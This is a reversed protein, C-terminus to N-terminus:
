NEEVADSESHGKEAIEITESSLEENCVACYVVSDYFGEETCTPEIRNEEVADSETHGKEAIEITERSLEEKCVSCYVVSNYSGKEICTAEKRNEEVADSEKHGLAPVFEIYNEGCVTCVCSNAGSEVCTPAKTQVSTSSSHGLAPTINEFALGCSCVYKARGQEVCTAEKLVTIVYNHSHNVEANANIFSDNGSAIAMNIWENLTGDYYVNALKRCNYFAYEGVSTVTDPVTISNLYYCDYFANSSITKVGSGIVVNKLNDCDYFTESAITEVTGPISVTVLSDCNYFARSGITEVSDPIIIEKLSTCYSFASNGISKLSHSISVYKLKACGAFASDAIVEIGESIVVSNLNICSAFASDSIIEIGESIVVTQISSCGRFASPLVEGVSAPVVLNVLKEYGIYLDAVHVLPTAYSDEFQIECWEAVTGNYYVETIATCNYFASVGSKTVSAPITAKQLKGYNYFAYPKIETITGPIVIETVLNAGMYFNESYSLPNAKANEFTIRCWNEADGNYYVRSLGSCEYFANEGIETVSEPIVVTNLNQRNLFAGKVIHTTGEKITCTGSFDEKACILRTGSYLCGGEWNDENLYYGSGDFAYEGISVVSDPITISVAGTCNYFAYDGIHTVGDEIVIEKITNRSEYWPTYMYYINEDHSSETYDIMIGTGKTFTVKEINKCNYFARGDVGNCLKASVPLTLEKLGTCSEFASYFIRTVSDPITVSTLSTCNEFASTGISTVSDPIEITTLGKCGYFAYVGINTVGDEVIIEKIANRSIYWPTYWYCTKGSDYCSDEEYDQMICTGKTLTVKEINTCNYFTYSSNYIKASAPMTLEKLGTCNYFAYNGIRTVSDPIEITTLGTCGYFADSGISTVSDPITVSTLGTCGYFAGYDISTVSDPISITTLGTCGSFASSGISTVSDPITISTIEEFSLFVYNKIETVTDPIVIEEVLTNEIYFNRAYRMPNAYSHGFEIGCWSEIDGTYYVRALSTCGYFAYSGMSTVGDEIVIEECCSIFWPTYAYYTNTEYSSTSEAYSMMEGTGKTLIVKEINTCNYFTYSSNYIKASVPMTLEKLGTCNYFAYNDINTVSDPIEITTLGTCGSFASYGINTVRDPITVSTLSTNNKFANAVISTVPKGDVEALITVETETGVYSLVIAEKGAVAYTIGNETKIEVMSEEFLIKANGLYYQSNQGFTIRKWEEQTGSFLVYKLNTCYDFSQYSILTVSDPITVSTLSSCGYFAFSGINTVGDEIIIEKILKRSKYWPTYQYYASSDSFYSYDRMIGTGKTLTVKEINTCYDFALSYIKASAPMTLEKLGTCGYFSYNGIIKVSDPLFVSTITTNDKFANNAIETVPKGDIEAPITIETETGTYSDIVAEEDTTTYVFDGVTKLEVSSTKYFTKAGTLYGNGSDISIGKWDKETGSYLVYKVGTCNYFADYGISTVSDGITVSTLGTCNYFAYEGINTVGDEIVIEKITNRSIYWPTNQYHTNTVSSSTSTTYNQMVGTGETLTVKEINTCNYFTGSSNYIKASAPMTLEKLETCGYFAYYDISTVRDGITVSILGACGYFAYSGISTVSDGITVSTLGTCGEFAYNGISTVSDPITISKLSRCYEFAGNGISTISDPIEITTLGTCGRFACDGINTVGYEIVIEKITKRSIYWPIYQYYTHTSSGSYDTYNQMTGTGKTLTVKEINTCNGFTDSSNYIKASAPMTLEKLGTCGYFAGYDISTVSDPIEITTLGTCGSFADYGISTVSDPITVSTLSTCDYFAYFGINTVGDAINVKKIYSRYSCWPVNSYYSSYNYMAGTGTINFVGTETNLSWNVNDGCSGSYTAADAEVSFDFLNWQPLNIEPFKLGVFGSLPASCLVMAVALLASLTKMLTKNKM